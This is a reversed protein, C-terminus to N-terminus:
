AQEGQADPAPTPLEVGELAETAAAVDDNNIAQLANLLATELESIRVEVPQIAAAVAENIQATDDGFNKAAIKATEAALQETITSM